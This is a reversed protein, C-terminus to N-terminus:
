GISMEGASIDYIKKTRDVPVVGTKYIKNNVTKKLYIM